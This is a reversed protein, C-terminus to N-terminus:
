ILYIGNEQLLITLKYRIWCQSGIKWFKLIYLQLYEKLLYSFPMMDFLVM